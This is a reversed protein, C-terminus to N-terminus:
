IKKLISYYGTVFLQSNVKSLKNTFRITIDSNFDCTTEIIDRTFDMNGSSLLSVDYYGVAGLAIHSYLVNGVRIFLTRTRHKNLATSTGISNVYSLVVTDNIYEKITRYRSTGTNNYFQWLGHLELIDNDAMTQAPITFTIIDTEVVSNAISNITVPINFNSGTPMMVPNLGADFGLVKGSEPTVLKENWKANEYKQLIYDNAGM